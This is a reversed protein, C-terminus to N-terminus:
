FTTIHVFGGSGVRLHVDCGNLLTMGVLPTGEMALVEAFREQGDWLLRLEYVDLQVPTGDALGAPQARVFPLALAACIAPPLTLEGTFGTDVVFQVSHTDDNAAFLPLVVLVRLNHVTGVIM